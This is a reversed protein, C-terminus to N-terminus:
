TQAGMCPQSATRILEAGKTTMCEQMLGSYFEDWSPPPATADKQLRADAWQWGLTLKAELAAKAGDDEGDDRIYFGDKPWHGDNAKNLAILDTATKWIFHLPIGSYRARAGGVIDHAREACAKLKPSPEASGVKHFSSAASEHERCAGPGQAKIESDKIIWGASVAEEIAARETSTLGDDLVYIADYHEGEHQLRELDHPGIYSFRLPAGNCRVFAGFHQQHEVWTEWTFPARGARIDDLRDAGAATGMAWLGGLVVAVALANIIFNLLKTM